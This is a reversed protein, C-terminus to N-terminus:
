DLRAQPGAQLDRVEMEVSRWGQWENIRPTFALCCKGGAGMLEQAREGMGFGIAKLERTGQRVKFSLHREGGGVRRPEGVVQLDGALFLPQSNGAGYPELAKMSEVLGPTLASLPVETDLHLKPSPPGEVFRKSAAECLHQRFPEVAAAAIKFGAATAHGGHSLLDQACEQLAEHLKFGPISRGSGAGPGGDRPLAILVVPRGFAEMLRGAVIGIMGAHWSDSALVLAPAGERDYREAQERAETYIHREVAQRKQNQEELFKALDGARQASTTTLLEVALRASGLRGAANLRPALSFGIDTACISEKKDLGAADVLAKLGLIPTQKMRALGHRVFIRNEDRLPVVDAVTGLAALSVADLLCDRHRPAVKEGGCALQCLAWAVKFAVGAGSLSGFPYAGERLRPHVLVDAQPLTAKFEHHDTVILELGLKRAEEAEAISAIGCDVTVVLKAGGEAIRQLADTKVGYGDELRHPVHFDVEAGLLRLTHLLIATGSVGDVDYDGYVCIRRRQQVASWLRESAEKVGPLLTPEHLGTLPAKLFRAAEDPAALGRNILLQAVVVPLGLARALREATHPDHPLL